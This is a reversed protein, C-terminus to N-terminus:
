KKLCYELAIIAYATALNKDSEWWRNNENMWYGDSNQISILKEALDKRWNRKVGKSDTLYPEGYALLAKAFTNYAYYLGQNGMGPNEDITYHKKIWSYAAQVRPDNKDVNAYLFSKLGAYTMSGYSKTGGAKSDGPLYVFGGDNGAWQQDNSESRNQCRQLFTVARKWAESDASLGTEKLAELATQLNSLDPRETSGYGIGGYFKDESTYGEKEDLQADVIYNQAKSIIESYKPNELAVLACVANATVYNPLDKDYIAGDPKQLKILYQVPKKIFPGDSENYKNPSSVFAKLVIATVGPHGSWSGDEDMNYRLYRLGRNIAAEIEKKLSVDIYEEDSKLDASSSKGADKSYSSLSFVTLFMACLLVLKVNRFM